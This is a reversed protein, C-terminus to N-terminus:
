HWLRCIKGSTKRRKSKRLPFLMDTRQEKYEIEKVANDPLSFEIATYGPKLYAPKESVPINIGTKKHLLMQGGTMFYADVLDHGPTFEYPNSDKLVLLWNQFTTTTNLSFKVWYELPAEQHVSSYPKFLHDALGNIIESTRYVDPSDIMVYTFQQLNHQMRSSDAQYWQQAQAVITGSMLLILLLRKM